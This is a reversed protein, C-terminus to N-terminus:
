FLFLANFHISQTISNPVILFVSDYRDKTKSGESFKTANEGFM